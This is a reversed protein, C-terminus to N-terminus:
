EWCKLLDEEKAIWQQIMRIWFYRGQEVETHIDRSTEKLKVITKNDLNSLIDEKILPFRSFLDEIAKGTEFDNGFYGKSKKTSKKKVFKKLCRQKVIKNGM